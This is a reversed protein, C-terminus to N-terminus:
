VVRMRRAVIARTQLLHEEVMVLDDVGKDALSRSDGIAQPIGDADLQLFGDGDRAAQAEFEEFAARLRRFAGPAAGARGGATAARLATFIAFRRALGRTAPTSGARAQRAAVQWM